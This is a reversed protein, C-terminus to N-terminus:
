QAAPAETESAGEAEVEPAAQTAPEPAAEPAAEEGPAAAQGAERAAFEISADQKLRELEEVFTERIMVQRIQDSVQEFAPPESTRREDLRIVHYGFQSQVPEEVVAGPELAFAADEFPKVMQGRRFFGLSGGQAASGPDKSNAAALEAFDGGENLEAILEKARAEDEVLIHSASVEEAPEIKGVEEEYRARVADDGIKEEILRAMYLDRLTQMRYAEVRQTVQPDEDYGAKQAADALVYMDVMLDLAVQPRQQEPVQELAQGLTELAFAVDAATVELGNVTALTPNAPTDGTVGQDPTAAPETQATTEQALASSGALVAAFAAASIIRKLM